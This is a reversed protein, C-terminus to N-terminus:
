GFVGIIKGESNRRIRQGGTFSDYEVSVSMLYEEGAELLPLDSIGIQFTDGSGVLFGGEDLMHSRVSQPVCEGSFTHDCVYDVQNLSVTLKKVFIRSGGANIFVVSFVGENGQVGYEIGAEVPKVSGFGEISSIKRESSFVGYQWLFLGILMFVVVTWSYTLVYEVISQGSNKLFM